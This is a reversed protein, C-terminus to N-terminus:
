TPDTDLMASQVNNNYNHTNGNNCPQSNADDAVWANCCVSLLRPQENVHDANLNEYLGEAKMAKGDSPNFLLHFLFFVCILLVSM